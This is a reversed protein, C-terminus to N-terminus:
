RINLNPMPFYGGLNGFSAPHGTPPLRGSNIIPTGEPTRLQDGVATTQGMTGQLQRVSQYLQSTAGQIQQQPRVFNYYNLEPRNNNLLNLYPSITPRRLNNLTRTPGRPARVQSWASHDCLMLGVWLGAVGWILWRERYWWEHRM